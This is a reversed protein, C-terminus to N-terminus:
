EVIELGEYMQETDSANMKEILERWQAQTLQPEELRIVKIVKGDKSYTVETGDSLKITPM